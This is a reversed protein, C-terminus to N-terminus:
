GCPRHVTQLSSLLAATIFDASADACLAYAEYKRSQRCILARVSYAVCRTVLVAVGGKRCIPSYM